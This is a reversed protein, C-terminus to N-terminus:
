EALHSADQNNRLLSSKIKDLQSTCYWMMMNHFQHTVGEDCVHQNAPFPTREGVPHHIRIRLRPLRSWLSTLPGTKRAKSNRYIIRNPLAGRQRCVLMDPILPRCVLAMPSAQSGFRVWGLGVSPHELTEHASQEVSSTLPAEAFALFTRIQRRKRLLM